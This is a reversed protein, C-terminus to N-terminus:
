FINSRKANELSKMVLAEQKEQDFSQGLAEETVKKVIENSIKNVEEVKQAKYKNIELKAEEFESSIAMEEGKEEEILKEVTERKMTKAINDASRAILDVAQETADAIALNMRQNVTDTTDIKIKRNLDDQDIKLSLSSYKELLKKYNIFLYIVCFLLLLIIAASTYILIVLENM